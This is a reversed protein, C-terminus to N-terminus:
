FLRKLEMVDSLIYDAEHKEFDARAKEGSLGTLVAAFQCGIERAAILDALSDGVVLVEGAGEYPLQAKLSASEGKDRGNLAMVYTFPHPKSLSGREPNTKQAALVDDATIVTNEDFFQLWDLHQFPQITELQPRGTGIGIKVGADLLGRFLGAIEEAPALTKEDALFGKKGTQVSERGTSQLVHEDGVYWEQSVHECVSWLAGKERFISTEVGLKEDALLDLHKMLCQKTEPTDKFNELFAEYRIEVDAARLAQGIEQLVGRDIPASLWKATKEKDDLQALLEILQCSFTLYIMDWNANLGRSKLFSLVQDHQFVEGRILKIESFAVDVRYQNPALGLYNESLLLEWVTLASADFYHEESLLVGDVDFLVTSIM